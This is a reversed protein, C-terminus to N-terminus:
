PVRGTLEAIEVLTKEKDLAGEDGVGSRVHHFLTAAPAIFEGCVASQM